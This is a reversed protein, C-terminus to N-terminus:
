WGEGGGARVIGEMGTRKSNLTSIRAARALLFLPFSLFIAIEAPEAGGGGRNWEPNRPADHFRLFLTISRGMSFKENSFIARRRKRSWKKRGARENTTSPTSKKKDPTPSPQRGRPSVRRFTDLPISHGLDLSAEVSKM